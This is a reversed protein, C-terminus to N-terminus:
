KRIFFRAYHSSVELFFMEYVRERESFFYFKMAWEDFDIISWSSPHFRPRIENGLVTPIQGLWVYETLCSNTYVFVFPYYVRVDLRRNLFFIYLFVHQNYFQTLIAPAPAHADIMLFYM